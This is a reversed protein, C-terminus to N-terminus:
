VCFFIFIYFKAGSVILLFILLISIGQLSYSLLVSNDQAQAGHRLQQPHHRLRGAAEQLKVLHGDVVPGELQEVLEAGGDKYEATHQCSCLLKCLNKLM